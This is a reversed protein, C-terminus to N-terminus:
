RKFSEAFLCLSFSQKYFGRSFTVVVHNRYWATFQVVEKTTYAPAPHSKGYFEGANWVLNTDLSTAIRQLSQVM